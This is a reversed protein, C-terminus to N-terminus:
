EKGRITVGESDNSKFLLIVFTEDVILRFTVRLQSVSCVLVFFLKGCVFIFAVNERHDLKKSFFSCM